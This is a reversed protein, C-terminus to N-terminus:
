SLAIGADAASWAGAGHFGTLVDACASPPPFLRCRFLAPQVCRLARRFLNPHNNLVLILDSVRYEGFQLAYLIGASPFDNGCGDAMKVIERAFHLECFVLKALGAGENRFEAFSCVLSV